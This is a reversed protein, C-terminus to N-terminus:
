GKVTVWTIDENRKKCMILHWLESNYDSKQM